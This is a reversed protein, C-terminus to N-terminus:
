WVIRSAYDKLQKEDEGELMVRLLNETGSYRILVRCGDSLKDEIDAIAQSVSIMSDLPKKERIKVNQIRSPLKKVVSVIESLPKSRRKLYIAVASCFNFWRRNFQLRPFHSSRVARRWPTVRKMAEVVYRDGVPTKIIDIGHRRMAIDLGMNSM